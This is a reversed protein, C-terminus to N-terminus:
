RRGRNWEPVIEVRLPIAVPRAAQHDGLVEGCYPCPWAETGREYVVARAPARVCRAVFVDVGAPARDARLQVHIRQRAPAPSM